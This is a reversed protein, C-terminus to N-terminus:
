TAAAATTVSDPSRSASRRCTTSWEVRVRKAQPTPTSACSSRSPRARDGRRCRLQAAREISPQPASSVSPTTASRAGSRTRRRTGRDRRHMARVEDVQLQDFGGSAPTRRGAAARITTSAEAKPRSSTAPRSTPSRATLTSRPTSPPPGDLRPLGETPSPLSTRSRRRGQQAGPRRRPLWSREAVRSGPRGAPPGSCSPAANSTSSSRQHRTASRDDQRPRIVTSPDSTPTTTM